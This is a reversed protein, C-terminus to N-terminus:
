KVLKQMDQKFKGKQANYAPRIFPQASMYRTGYELYPSYETEPGVSATFGSDIIESRISHKTTGTQYGQTFEAEMQMKEQLQYGHKKVVMKVHNLTVKDKLAKEVFAASEKPKVFSDFFIYLDKGQIVTYNGEVSKRNLEKAILPLFANAAPKNHLGPKVTRVDHNGKVALLKHNPFFSKVVAFGDAFMKEQLEYTDCDGQTFDGVQIVFPMDASLQRAAATLVSRSAGNQWMTINRKRENKKHPQAPESTHYEKGDFHIDGLTMFSYKEGAALYIGTLITLITLLKKM